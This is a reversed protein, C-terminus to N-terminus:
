PTRTDIPKPHTTQVCRGQMGQTVRRLWSRHGPKNVDKSNSLVGGVRLATHVPELHAPDSGLAKLRVVAVGAAILRELIEPWSSAPALTAVIRTHRPM